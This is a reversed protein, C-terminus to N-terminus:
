SATIGTVVACIRELSKNTWTLVQSLTAEFMIRDITHIVESFVICQLKEMSQENDVDTVLTSM